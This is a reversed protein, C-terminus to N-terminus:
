MEPHTPCRVEGTAPDYAYPQNSVPCYFFNTSVGLNLDKLAPPNANTTASIKYTAIGLRIQHLQQRCQERKATDMSKGVVTQKKSAKDLLPSEGSVTSPPGAGFYIAAAVVVIAVAALLAILTWNGRNDLRM